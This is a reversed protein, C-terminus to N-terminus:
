SLPCVSGTKTEKYPMRGPFPTPRNKCGRLRYPAVDDFIDGDLSISGCVVHTHLTASSHMLYVPIGYTGDVCTINLLSCPEFNLKFCPLDYELSSASLLNIVSFVNVTIYFLLLHIFSYPKVTGCVNQLQTKGTM